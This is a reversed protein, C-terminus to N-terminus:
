RVMELLHPGFLLCGIVISGVVAILVAGAATDKALRVTPHMRAEVFNLLFELATNLLEGMLVLCVTLLLLIFEVRSFHFFLAAGCVLFGALVHLRFNRQSRIVFLIGHCAYGCSKIM